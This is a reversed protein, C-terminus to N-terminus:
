DESCRRSQDEKEFRCGSELRGNLAGPSVMKLWKVVVAGTGVRSKVRVVSKGATWMCTQMRGWRPAM